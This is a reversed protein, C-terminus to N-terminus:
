ADVNTVDPANESLTNSHTCLDRHKHMYRTHLWTHKHKNTDAITDAIAGILSYRQLPTQM